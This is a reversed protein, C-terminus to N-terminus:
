EPGFGPSCRFPGVRAKALTERAGRFPRPRRYGGFEEPEILGKGFHFRGLQGFEFGGMGSRKAAEMLRDTVVFDLLWL